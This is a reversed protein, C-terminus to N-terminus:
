KWIYMLQPQSNYSNKAISEVINDKNLLASFGGLLSGFGIPQEYEVTSYDSIGALAAAEDIADERYGIEDILGIQLADDSSFVRGDFAIGYSSPKIPRNDKVIGVFRDYSHEVLSLMIEDDEETPFRTSSFIDKHKGSKYVQEKVGVNNFLETFNLSSFIVGISGILSTPEAYIADSSASVYYAGSAATEGYYSVVLVGQEQAKLIENYIIDSASVTGGPSNIDLLIAKVRPDAVAQRIQQVTLEASPQVSGFIDTSQQGHQIVGQVPIIVIRDESHVSSQIVKEPLGTDSSTTAFGSLAVFFLTVNLALSVFLILIGFCGFGWAWCSKSRSKKITHTKTM